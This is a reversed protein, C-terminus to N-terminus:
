ILTIQPQPTSNGAPLQARFFECVLYFPHSISTALSLCCIQLLAPFLRLVQATETGCQVVQHWTGQALGSMPFSDLEIEFTYYGNIRM